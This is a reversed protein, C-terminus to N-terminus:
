EPFYDMATLAYVSGYSADNYLKVHSGTTTRALNYFLDRLTIEPNNYISIRFARSFANSLFVGLDLNHVDAKSPEVTNAATIAIVDPLGTIAEGVLGSFCTEIALMCRRYGDRDNLEDLIGRMREGTFVTSGSGDSWCMGRGDAGHGSWFIFVNSGASTNLVHPLRGGDTDGLIIKRIDDIQLDSFHYDVVANKRVNDDDGFPGGPTSPNDECILVIHDDDYGHHRLTQYMSFADAQHRYNAWTTSPTIVLTWYDKVDPLNHNVIIDPDFEERIQKQWEWTPLTAVQGDDGHTSFTILPYRDGGGNTYWLWYTTQLITNHMKSDFQLKGTAGNLNPNQGQALLRFAKNMGDVTWNTPTGSKDAVLARMWDSLNPGLPEDRYEVKQGDITLDDPGTPNGARKAAGLAAIM